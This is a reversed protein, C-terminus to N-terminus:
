KGDGPGFSMVISITDDLFTLLHDVVVKLSEADLDDM